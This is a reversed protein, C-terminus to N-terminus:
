TTTYPPLHGAGGLPDGLPSASENLTNLKKLFLNRSPFL